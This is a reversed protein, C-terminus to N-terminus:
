SFTQLPKKCSKSADEGESGGQQNEEDNEVNEEASDPVEKEILHLEVPGGVVGSDKLEEFFAGLNLAEEDTYDLDGINKCMVGKFIYNVANIVQERSRFNKYLTIKRTKAGDIKSYSRYKGLFLEPRAQRFRYISQKVDGVMFVNPAGIKERSIINLLTEQVMNSDQYEDILIEEYKNRLQLAVPSPQPKVDDGLIVEGLENRDMLIHLCYHEFDNFDIISREKKKQTYKEQLDIVLQSLALMQPYLKKIDELADESNAGMVQQELEQLQKKVKNRIEQVQKQKEKDKCAKITTLKKFSLSEITSALNQFNINAASLLDSIIALDSKFVEEYLAIAENGEIIKLAKIMVKEIGLLEIKIDEILVEAWPTDSLNYGDKINFDEAADLLWKTPDTSSMAFNYLSLVIAQLGLDEKNNSYSEVLKIFSSTEDLNKEEESISVYREDFLEELAEQKLLVAETADAIRFNPDLDVIHFNSRIVELCFSHITTISSKNLLTLQRQLLKSQPNNHLEKSIAAAIRERMESAAANTFTVVLLKDIDTPREEDTVIKIIREVLVATKGSGAAAAVLINCDRTYIAKQQDETWSVIDSPKIESIEKEM